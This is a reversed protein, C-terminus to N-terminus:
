VLDSRPQFKSSSGPSRTRHSDTKTACSSQPIAPHMVVYRAFPKYTNRSAAYRQGLDGTIEAYDQKTSLANARKAKAEIMEDSSIFNRSAFNASFLGNLYRYWGHGGAM